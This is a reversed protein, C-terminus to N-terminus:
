SYIHINEEIFDILRKDHNSSHHNNWRKTFVMFKPIVILTTSQELDEIFSLFISQPLSPYKLHDGCNPSCHEAYFLHFLLTDMFVSWPDLKVLETLLSATWSFGFIELWQFTKGVMLGHQNRSICIKMKCILNELKHCNVVEEKM